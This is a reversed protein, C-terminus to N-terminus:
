WCFLNQFGQPEGAVLLPEDSGCRLDGQKNTSGPQGLGDALVSRSLDPSYAAIYANLCIISYDTSQPPIAARECRGGAWM